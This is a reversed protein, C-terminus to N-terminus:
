RLNDARKIGSQPCVIEEWCFFVPLFDHCSCQGKGFV